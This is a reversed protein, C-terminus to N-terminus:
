DIGLFLQRGMEGLRVGGHVLLPWLVLELAIWLYNPTLNKHLVVCLTAFREKIFELLSM